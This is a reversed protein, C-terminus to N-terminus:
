GPRCRRPASGATNASWIWLAGVAM